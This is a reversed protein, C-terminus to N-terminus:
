HVVQAPKYFLGNAKRPQTQKIQQREQEECLFTVKQHTFKIVNKEFLMNVRSCEQVTALIEREGKIQEQLETIKEDLEVTKKKEEYIANLFEARRIIVNQQIVDKPMCPNSSLEELQKYARKILEEHDRYIAELEKISPDCERYVDGIAQIQNNKESFTSITCEVLAQVQKAFIQMPDCIKKQDALLKCLFQVDKKVAEMGNDSSFRVLQEVIFASGSGIFSLTAAGVCIPGFIFKIALDSAKESSTLQASPQSMLKKLCGGWFSAAAFMSKAIPSRSEESTNFNVGVRGIKYIQSYPNINTKINLTM